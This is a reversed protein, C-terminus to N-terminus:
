SSPHGGGGGKGGYLFVCRSIKEFFFAVCFPTYRALTRPEQEATWARRVSGARGESRECRLRLDCGCSWVVLIVSLAKEDM